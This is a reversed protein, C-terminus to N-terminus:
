LKFSYVYNKDNGYLFGSPEFTLYFLNELPVIGQGQWYAFPRYASVITLDADLKYIYHTEFSGAWFDTGNTAIAYPQSIDLDHVEKVRDPHGDFQVLKGLETTAWLYKKDATMDRIVFDTATEGAVNGRGADLSYVVNKDAGDGSYWFGGLYALAGVKPNEYAHVDRGYLEFGSDYNGTWVMDYRWGGALVGAEKTCLGRFSPQEPPGFNQRAVLPLPAQLDFAKEKHEMVMNKEVVPYGNRICHVLYQGPSIEEFLFRGGADTTDDAQIFDDEYTLEVAKVRVVVDALLDQSGIDSIVGSLPYVPIEPATIEHNQKKWCGLTISLLILAPLAIARYRKM